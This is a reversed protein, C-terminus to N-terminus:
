ASLQDHGATPSAIPCYLILDVVAYLIRYGTGTRPDGSSRARFIAIVAALWDGFFAARCKRTNAGADGTLRLPVAVHRVARDIAAAALVTLQFLAPRQSQRAQMKHRLPWRMNQKADAPQRFEVLM